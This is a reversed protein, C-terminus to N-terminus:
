SSKEKAAKACRAASEQLELMVDCMPAQIHYKDSIAHRKLDIRRAANRLVAAEVLRAFRVEYGIATTKRGIAKSVMQALKKESLM